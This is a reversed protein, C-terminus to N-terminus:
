EVEGEVFLIEPKRQNSFFVRIKKYFYGVKQADYEIELIGTSDPLIPEFNYSPATCGCAVRVNDFTIPEDSINTFPFTVTQPIGQSMLGFDYTTDMGWKVIGENEPGNLGLTCVMLLTSLLTKM